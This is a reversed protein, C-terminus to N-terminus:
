LHIEVYPDVCKMSESIFCSEKWYNSLGHKSQTRFHVSIPLDKTYGITRATRSGQDISLVIRLIDKATVM